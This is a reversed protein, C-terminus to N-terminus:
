KKELIEAEKKLFEGYTIESESEVDFVEPFTTNVCLISGAVYSFEGFSTYLEWTPFSLNNRIGPWTSIKLSMDRFKEFYEKSLEATIYQGQYLKANDCTITLEIAERSNFKASWSYERPTTITYKESVAPNQHLTCKLEEQVFVKVAALDQKNGTILM